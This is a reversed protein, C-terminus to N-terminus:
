HKYELSRLIFFFVCICLGNVVLGCIAFMCVVLEAFRFFFEFRLVRLRLVRLRLGQLRFGRLRFGRFRLDRLWLVYLCKTVIFGIEVHM